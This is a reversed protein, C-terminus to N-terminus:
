PSGQKFMWSILTLQKELMLSAQADHADYADEKIHKVWECNDPHLSLRLLTTAGVLVSHQRAIVLDDLICQDTTRNCFM